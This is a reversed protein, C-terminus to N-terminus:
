GGARDGPGAAPPPPSPCRIDPPGTFVARPFDIEVIRQLDLAVDLPVRPDSRLRFLADDVRPALDAAGVERLRSRARAALRRSEAAEAPSRPDHYAIERADPCARWAEIDPGMSLHVIATAGAPTRLRRGPFYQAQGAPLGVDLGARAMENVLAWGQNPDQMPDTWTVLYRGDRGTGPIRDDRLARIAPRAAGGLAQGDRTSVPDMDAVRATTVVTFALLAVAGVVAGARGVRVASRPRAVKWWAVATWGSALIMLVAPWWTWLFVYSYPLGSDRICM